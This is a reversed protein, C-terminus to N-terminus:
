PRYIFCRIQWCRGVCRGGFEEHDAWTAEPSKFRVGEFELDAANVVQVSLIRCLALEKSSPGCALSGKIPCDCPQRGEFRRGVRGFLDIYCSVTFDESSFGCPVVPSEKESEAWAFTFHTQPSTSTTRACVSTEFSFALCSSGMKHTTLSRLLEMRNWRCPRGILTAECGCDDM